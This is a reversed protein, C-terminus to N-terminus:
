GTLWPFTSNVMVAEKVAAERNEDLDRRIGSL